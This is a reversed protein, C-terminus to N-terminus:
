TTPISSPARRPVPLSSRVKPSWLCTGSVTRICRVEKHPLISYVSVYTLAIVVSPRVRREWAFGVAALPFAALLAKPLAATFYWHAPQTGWESSRHTM